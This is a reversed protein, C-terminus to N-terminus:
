PLSCPHSSNSFSFQVCDKIKELSNLLDSFKVSLVNRQVNGISLGICFNCLHGHSM